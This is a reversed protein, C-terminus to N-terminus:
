GVRDRDDALHRQALVARTRCCPVEDAPLIRGRGGTGVEALSLGIYLLGEREEVPFELLSQGADAPPGAIARGSPDFVGNHCPCFFRNNHPEWNVMCGLHPCTSSLAVIRDGGQRAINVVAGSPTEFRLAEAGVLDRAPAVYLWSRQKAEPQLFRGLFSAFTGYAAALAAFAAILFGRRTGNSSTSTSPEVPMSTRLGRLAASSTRRQRDITSPFAGFQEGLLWADVYPIVSPKSGRGRFQGYSGPM